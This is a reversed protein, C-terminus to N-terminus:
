GSDFRVRFRHSRLNRGQANGTQRGRRGTLLIGRGKRYVSSLSAPADAHMDPGKLFGLM